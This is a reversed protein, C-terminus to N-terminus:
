FDFIKEGLPLACGKGQFGDGRVRPGKPRPQPVKPSFFHNELPPPSIISNYLIYGQPKPFFIQNEQLLAYKKGKDFHIQMSFTLDQSFFKIQFM